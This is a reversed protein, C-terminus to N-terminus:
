KRLTAVGARQAARKLANDNTVLTCGRRMALELYAADYATLDYLTALKLTQGWAQNVTATDVEIALDSLMNVLSPIEDEKLRKRRVAMRMLNAIELRWHQPVIAGQGNLLDLMGPIIDAAEDPVILPGFASADFVFGTV